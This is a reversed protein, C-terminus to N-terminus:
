GSGTLLEATLDAEFDEDLPWLPRWVNSYTLRAPELDTGGPTVALFSSQAQAAQGPFLYGNKVVVVDYGDVPIYANGPLKRHHFAPDLPDVFYAKTSQVSVHISGSSLVAGVIGEEPYRGAILKRVKWPQHVPGSSRSDRWAGIGRDLVHGEGHEAALAVAGPDCIGAFLIRTGSQVVEARELTAKLAYTVDGSGGASVNDGSDSIFCPVAPKTLVFDLAEDWSGSHDSVICFDTRAEWYMQALRTALNRAVEADEGTVLVAAANRDEDGWAFGVWLSADVVGPTEDALRKVTAFLSKAPEYITATREGPLLVPIRVYAKAPRSGECLTVLLKTVARERIEWADIHPAQRYCVALDVLEALERSFNGHTDMSVSIVPEDGIVSRIKKLLTEEARNRGAVSAAGHLDLYLGDVPGASELGSVIHAVIGDFAEQNVLGGAGAQASYVPVWEVSRDSPVLRDLFDYHDKLEEGQLVVFDELSTRHPSFTSSETGFAAIAIRM